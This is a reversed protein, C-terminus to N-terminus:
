GGAFGSKKEQLNAIVKKLTSITREIECDPINESYIGLIGSFVTEIREAAARGKGTLYLSSLRKDDKVLRNCILGKSALYKVAKATTSKDVYLRECIEKRASGNM